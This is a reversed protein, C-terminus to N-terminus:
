RTGPVDRQGPDRTVRGLAETPLLFPEERNSLKFFHNRCIGLDGGEEIVLRDEDGSGGTEHAFNEDLLKEAAGIDPFDVKEDPRFFTVEPLLGM